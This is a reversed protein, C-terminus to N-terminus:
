ENEVQRHIERVEDETLDFNELDYMEDEIREREERLQSLALIHGGIESVVENLRVILERYRIKPTM